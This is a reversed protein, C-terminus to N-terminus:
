CLSAENAFSLHVEERGTARGDLQELLGLLPEPVPGELMGDHLRFLKKGIRSLSMSSLQALAGRKEDFPAGFKWHTAPGEQM